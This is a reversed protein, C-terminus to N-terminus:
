PHLHENVWGPAFTHVVGRDEVRGSWTAKGDASRGAFFEYAKRDLIRDKAVRFMVLQNMTGETNGNPAYAYVFGDTNDRYNMGMQLVTLLSFADGPEEFFAM